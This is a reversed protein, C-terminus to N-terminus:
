RSKKTKTVIEVRRNMPEAVEDETDIQPKSEGLCSIAIIKSRIGSSVLLRQVFMARKRSLYTNYEGTGVRDAHGVVYIELPSLNELHEIVVPVKEQSDATLEVSDRQCYLTFSDFRFWQTPEAALAGGFLAKVQREKM